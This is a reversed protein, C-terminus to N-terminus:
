WRRWLRDLTFKSMLKNKMVFYFFSTVLNFYKMGILFKIKTKTYSFNLIIRFKPHYRHDLVKFFTRFYYKWCFIEERKKKIWHQNLWHPCVERRIHHFSFVDLFFTIESCSTEYLPCLYLLLFIIFCINNLSFFM